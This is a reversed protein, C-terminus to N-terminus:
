IEGASDQPPADGNHQAIISDIEAGDLVEKDLLAEAMAHLADIHKELLHRAHEDLMDALDSLGEPDYRDNTSM